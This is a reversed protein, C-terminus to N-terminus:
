SWTKQAVHGFTDKVYVERIPYGRFGIGPVIVTPPSALVGGDDHRVWGNWNRGDHTWNQYLADDTGRVYIDIVNPALSVAGVEGKIQGGVSIWRSTVQGLIEILHNQYVGGDFGRIFIDRTTPETSVVTPSSDIKNGGPQHVWGKWNVGDHAKNAWIEDNMGRAYLKIEGNLLRVAGVSGKVKGGVAIWSWASGNWHHQYVSGDPRTVFIDRTTPSVVVVPDAAIKISGQHNTWGTWGGSSFWLKQWIEDDSWRVYLERIEPAPSVVAVRGKPSGGLSGWATWTPQLIFQALGVGGGEAAFVQKCACGIWEEAVEAAAPVGLVTALLGSAQAYTSCTGRSTILGRSKAESLIAVLQWYEPQSKIVTCVPDTVADKITEFVSGFISM